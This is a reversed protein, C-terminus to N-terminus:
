ADGDRGKVHNRFDTRLHEPAYKYPAGARRMALMPLAAIHLCELLGVEGASARKCDEKSPLLYMEMALTREMADALPIYRAGRARVQAIKDKLGDTQKAMHALIEETSANEYDFPDNNQNSM